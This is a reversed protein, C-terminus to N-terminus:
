QEHSKHIFIPVFSIVSLFSAIFFALLFVFIGFLFGIITLVIKVAILWMVGEFSLQFIVGPLKISWSAVSVFVESIYTYTFICYIDAFFVYSVLIPAFITWLIGASNFNIICIILTIIFAVAAFVIGWIIPKRDTRDALSSGKRQKIEPQYSKYIEEVKKKEEKDEQMCNDCVDVVEIVGKNTKKQVHHIIAGEYIDQNCVSCHGIVRPSPVTEETKEACPMEEEDDENLLYDCSCNFIKALERISALDPENTDSEWKSVTQFAVHMQDALDKQTIGTDNRLKKLKQGFTM